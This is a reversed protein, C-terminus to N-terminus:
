RQLVTGSPHNSGHIMPHCNLCAKGAAFVSNPALTGSQHRGQMHCQQCLRPAKAVLLKDNSSGHPTHCILCDEKVPGHEWLVPAKKEAHCAYCTDNVSKGAMLKEARSGHPNHCSSCAMAGEGHPKSSDALPHKSRKHLEARVDRHCAACTELETRKALLKPNEGHASHCSLCDKGRGQHASWEWFLRPKEGAHCTLCAASALGGKLKSPNAIAFFDPNSKDGAASAHKSGPGHCTECSKDFPVGKANPLAKAHINNKFSEKDAHCSLCMDAGVYEAASPAAEAPKAADQGWIVAAAGCLIAAGVMPILVKPIQRLEADPDPDLPM